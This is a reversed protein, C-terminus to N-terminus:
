FKIEDKLEKGHYLNDFRSGRKKVIVIILGIIFLIVSAIQAVRFDHWMLSDTRLYEIFFRGVSYWMLYIGTLEGIKLYKYHRYIILFIFGVFSWLSEYLFTPHYYKGYINMGEIIYGPIYLKELFSRSVEYGHAEQNFFNGWRGVAQGLLMSVVAIDLMRFTNVKYRITYVIVWLTGAILAGHIALGGEWIKLIDIPNDQYYQYNFLVYYLRAGIAGIPVGWFILNIIFDDVINYKRGENIALTGGILLALFLFVSYWHIQIIGLDLAVGNM